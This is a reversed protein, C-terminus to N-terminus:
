TFDFSIRDTIEGDKEECDEVENDQVGGFIEALESIQISANAVLIESVGKVDIFVSSKNVSEVEEEHEFDLFRNRMNPFVHDTFEDVLSIDSSLHVSIEVSTQSQAYANVSSVFGKAKKEHDPIDNLVRELDSM